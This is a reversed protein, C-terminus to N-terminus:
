KVKVKVKVEEAFEKCAKFAPLMHAPISVATGIKINRGTKEKRKKLHFTGFGRLYVNEGNAM